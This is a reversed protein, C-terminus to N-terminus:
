QKEPGGKEQSIIWDAADLLNPATYAPHIGQKLLRPFSEKGYGTLVLVPKANINLAFLMDEVKDGVMYSHLLDIGFDQAAKLAMAPKPKRCACDLKYKPNLSHIYHPCYYMADIRAGRAHFTRIMKEHINKLNGEKILGRGIGSQNTIIVALLGAENLRKLAEFSYPYIHISEFSDPYGVDRNINGDRDLFVAKKRM